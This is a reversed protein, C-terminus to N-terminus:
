SCRFTLCVRERGLWVQSGDTLMVTGQVQYTGMGPPQFFTGGPSGLDTLQVTGRQREFRIEAHAAAIGPGQLVIDCDGGAGIRYFQKSQFLMQLVHGPRHQTGSQVVLWGAREPPISQEPVLTPTVSALPAHKTTTGVRSSGGAPAQVLDAVLV